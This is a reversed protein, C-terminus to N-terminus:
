PIGLATQGARRGGCFLRGAPPDSASMSASMRLWRLDHNESGLGQRHTRLTPAGASRGKCLLVQQGALRQVHQGVHAALKRAHQRVRAEHRRGGAPAAPSGVRLTGAPRVVGRGGPVAVRRLRSHHPRQAPQMCMIHRVAPPTCAILRKRRVTGPTAPGSGPSCVYKCGSAERRALKCLNM